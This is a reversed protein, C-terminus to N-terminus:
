SNLMSIGRCTYVLRVGDTHNQLWRQAINKVVVFGFMHIEAM